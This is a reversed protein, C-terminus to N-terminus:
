MENQQKEITLKQEINKWFHVRGELLNWRFRRGGSASRPVIKMLHELRAVILIIFLLVCSDDLLFILDISSLDGFLFRIISGVVVIIDLKDRLGDDDVLKYIIKQLSWVECEYEINYWAIFNWESWKQQM